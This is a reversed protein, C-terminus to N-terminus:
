WPLWDLWKEEVPAGYGQRASNIGVAVHAASAMFRCGESQCTESMQRELQSDLDRRIEQSIFEGNRHAVRLLDYGFDHVRCAPEFSAPLAVPSSCSGTPNEPLGAGSTPRYGLQAVLQPSFEISTSGAALAAAVTVAEGTPAVANAAPAQLGLVLGAAIFLSSLKQFGFM